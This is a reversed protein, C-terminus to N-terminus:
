PASADLNQNHQAAPAEPEQQPPGATNQDGSMSILSKGIDIDDNSVQQTDPTDENAPPAADQKADITPPTEKQSANGFDGKLDAPSSNILGQAEPPLTIGDTSGGNIKMQATIAGSMDANDLNSNEFKAHNLNANKFNANEANTGNFKGAYLTADEANVNSLDAGNFNVHQGDLHSINVGSMDAGSADVRSMSSGQLDAGAAKLGQAETHEFQVGQWTAGEINANNLKSGGVISMSSFQNNPPATLQTQRFDAESMDTM